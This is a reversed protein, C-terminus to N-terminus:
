PPFEVRSIKRPRGRPRRRENWEPSLRALWDLDGIPVRKTLSARIAEDQAELKNVRRLWDEFSADPLEDVLGDNELRAHGLTSSWLWDEARRVLHARLPNRDVYLLLTDLHRGGQVPVCQFRGQYIAGFRHPHAAIHAVAHRHTLLRMFHSLACTAHACIILHWHNPMVCYGHLKIAPCEQKTRFLIGLFARYDSANAFLPLKGAARNYVHCIVGDVPRRPPM